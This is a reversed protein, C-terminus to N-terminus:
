TEPINATYPHIYYCDRIRIKDFRNTVITWKLSDIRDTSEIHPLVSKGAFGIALQTEPTVIQDFLLYYEAASSIEIEANINNYAGGILSQDKTGVNYHGPKLYVATYSGPKLDVIKFNNIYTTPATLKEIADFPRFIYVTAYGAPGDPAQKFDAPKEQVKACSALAFCFGILFIHATLRMKLLVQEQWNQGFDLVGTSASITEALV